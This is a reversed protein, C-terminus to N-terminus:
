QGWGRGERVVDGAARSCRDAAADRVKVVDHNKGCLGALKRCRKAKHDDGLVLLLHGPRSGGGAVRGAEECGGTQKVAGLLRVSRFCEGGPPRDVEGAATGRLSMRTSGGGGRRREADSWIWRWLALLTVAM